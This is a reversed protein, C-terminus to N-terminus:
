AGFYQQEPAEKPQAKRIHVLVTETEADSFREHIRALLVRVPLHQHDVNFTFNFSQSPARSCRFNKIYDQFAQAEVVPEIDTFFNSGIIGATLGSAGEKDDSNFYLVTGSGDMEVLGLPLEKMYTKEIM